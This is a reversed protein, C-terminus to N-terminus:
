NTLKLRQAEGGSLTPSPQGLKLYGLGTDVLLSLARSIKPHASFIGGSRRDDNGDRRRDIKRQLSSRANASQLTQRRLRRVACLQEASFEDGTQDCGPRQVIRLSRRRCQVFIPERFLRARALGAVACLSESNRRLSQHLDGADLAVNKWHAIPRSRLGSRDRDRWKGAQIFQRERRRKKNELDARHGGAVSVDHM